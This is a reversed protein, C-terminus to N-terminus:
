LENFNGCSCKIAVDQAQNPTMGKVIVTSCAGCLVDIDGSSKYAPMTKPAIITKTGPLPEPIVKATKNPM